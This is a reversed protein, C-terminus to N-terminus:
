AAGDKWEAALLAYRVVDEFHDLKRLYQRHEGERRMGIKELVRGSARNRTFHMAQIRNLGLTVFGVGLMARAAETAIGQGWYPRGVWYGLEGRAHQLTLELGIAGIVGHPPWEIAYIAATHTAWAGGHTAIWAEAMGDQYPHPINLATDAVQVDGALRQVAPADDATFARLVLRATRLVPQQM